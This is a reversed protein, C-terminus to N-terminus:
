IMPREHNGCKWKKESKIKMRRRKRMVEGTKEEENEMKNKKQVNKRVENWDLEGQENANTLKLKNLM